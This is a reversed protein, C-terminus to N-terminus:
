PKARSHQSELRAELLKAKLTNEKVTRPLKLSSESNEFDPSTLKSMWKQVPSAHGKFLLQVCADERIDSEPHIKDGESSLSHSRILEDLLHNSDMGGQKNKTKHSSEKNFGCIEAQMEGQVWDPFQNKKRATHVNSQPGLLYRGKVKERSGSKKKTSNSNIYEELHGKIQKRAASTEQELYQSDYDTSSEEFAADQPASIAENLPFSELSQRHSFSKKLENTLLNGHKRSESIRKAHLFNEIDLSLKDVITNKEALNNQAEAIKMQMREDLWAESIHLILRDANETHVHETDPKYRLLRVEEEYNRIGKAFEDCLNELLIRAKREREFDKLVNSFSSKMESLDGALKRHLSESRKRLKREDELEDRVSQVVAKLRDQETNKRILKEEAVQKMLKDMKQQNMQKEQLLEKIKARSHDLDMKLAKVLSMNSVHQEELSWIRNLVKLLKTSTKLNYSSGGLKDKFDLSSTPTVAPNYPAVELSSGYSAPSVPQLACCNMEDSEHHKMLSTALHKSSSSAKEPQHPSTNPAHHLLHTPLDFGKHKHKFSPKPMQPLSLHHPQIEWLNACLKRASVASTPHRTVFEQAISKKVNPSTFELRWTPSPTSPGARKGVLIGRKLKKVMLEQRKEGREVGKEKREM